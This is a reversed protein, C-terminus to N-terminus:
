AMLFIIQKEHWTERLYSGAQLMLDVIKNPNKNTKNLLGHVTDM